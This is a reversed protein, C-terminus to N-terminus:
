AAGAAAATMISNRVQTSNSFVKAAATFVLDGVWAPAQGPKVFEQGMCLSAAPVSRKFRGQMNSMVCICLPQYLPQYAFCMITPGPVPQDRASPSGAPHFSEFCPHQLQLLMLEFNQQQFSTSAQFSATTRQQQM